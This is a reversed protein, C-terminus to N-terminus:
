NNNLDFTQIQRRRNKIRQCLRVTSKIQWPPLIITTFRKWWSDDDYTDDITHTVSRWFHSKTMAKITKLRPHVHQVLKDRDLLYQNAQATFLYLLLSKTTSEFRPQNTKIKSVIRTTFVEMKTMWPKGAFPKWLVTTTEEWPHRLGDWVINIMQFLGHKKSVVQM